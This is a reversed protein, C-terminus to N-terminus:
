LEDKYAYWSIKESIPNEGNTVKIVKGEEFV